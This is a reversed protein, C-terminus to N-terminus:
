RCQVREGYKSDFAKRLEEDTVQIRHAALRRTLIGQKLVDEKYEPLTIHLMPKVMQKEFDSATNFGNARMLERLEDEVEKETVAIGAMACSQEIIRRNILAELHAKGRRQILEDALEARTIAVGNVVAVIQKDAPMNSSHPPQALLAGAAALLLGACLFRLVKM